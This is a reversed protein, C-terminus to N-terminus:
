QKKSNNTRRRTGEGEELIKDLLELMRGDSLIGMHDTGNLRVVETGQGWGACVELSRQNVTGDGNGWRIYPQYDPFLWQHAWSFQEPTDVGTGFM